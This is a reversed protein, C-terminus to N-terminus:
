GDAGSLVACIVVLLLYICRTKLSRQNFGEVPEPRVTFIQNREHHAQRVMFPITKILAEKPLKAEVLLKYSFEIGVDTLLKNLRFPYQQLVHQLFGASTDM